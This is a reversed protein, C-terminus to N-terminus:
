SMLPSVLAMSERRWMSHILYDVGKANRFDERTADSGLFSEMATWMAVVHTSNRPALDVAELLASIIGAKSAM